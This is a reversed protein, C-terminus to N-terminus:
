IVSGIRDPDNEARVIVGCISRTKKEGDSNLLSGIYKNNSVNIVNDSNCQDEMAILQKLEIAISPKSSLLIDNLCRNDNIKGSKMQLMSYNDSVLISKTEM